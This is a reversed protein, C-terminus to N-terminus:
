RIKTQYLGKSVKEVMSIKLRRNEDVTICDWESFANCLVDNREFPHDLVYTVGYVNDSNSVVM